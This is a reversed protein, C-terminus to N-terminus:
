FFDGLAIWIGLRLPFSYSGPPLPPPLIATIHHHSLLRLIKRLCVRAKPDDALLANPPTVENRQTKIEKHHPLNVQDHHVMHSISDAPINGPAAGNQSLCLSNV